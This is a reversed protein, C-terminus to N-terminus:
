VMISETGIGKLPAEKRIASRAQVTGYISIPGKESPPESGEKKLKMIPSWILVGMQSIDM